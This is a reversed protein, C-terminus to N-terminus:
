ILDYPDFCVLDAIGNGVEKIKKCKNKISSIKGSDTLAYGYILPIKYGENIKQLAFKRMGEFMKYSLKAGRYEPLIVLDFILLHNTREKSLPVIYDPSINDDFFEDSSNMIELFEDSVPYMTMAGIFKENDYARIFCDPCKVFRAITYDCNTIIEEGYTQKDLDFLINYEELTTPTGYRIQINM